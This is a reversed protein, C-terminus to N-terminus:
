WTLVVRGFGGDYRVPGRGDGYFPDGGLDYSAGAVLYAGPSAQYGVHLAARGNPSYPLFRLYGNLRDADGHFTRSDVYYDLGARVGHRAPRRQLRAHLMLRRERVDLAAPISAGDFNTGTQRDTYREATLWAGAELNWVPALLYATLSRDSQRSTYDTALRAGPTAQRATRSFTSRGILGASLRAHGWEVLAGAYRAADDWAFAM